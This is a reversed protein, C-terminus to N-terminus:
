KPRTWPKAEFRQHILEKYSRLLEKDQEGDWPMAMRSSELGIERVKGMPQSLGVETGYYIIPPGPLSMQMSAARSLVSKDGGTIFLFRDMDHNDLFNLMLFDEPFYSLHQDLFRNFAEENISKQTFSRRIAEALIFDLAGDMRGFYRRLTPPPEVMEGFCFVDEKERKCAVWFDSWFSPGPGLAYDLRYGDVDFEGLWYRAIDLMWHQAELNTLNLQPMSRVGFYTRYGIHPDSFDFWQRYPSQPNALADKFIPHQDSLHNCILDLIVRLGRGHAAAVLERLAEDGGLRSEVREYDTADYGHHTPSPFIPSLWICNIGLDAIYDLKEAVGWLTGGFFGLLDSTQNWEKGKGPYFRDVFIQYIVAQRAWHPPRLRDISFNFLDGKAPDGARGTPPSGNHFYARTAEEVTSKVDPYDCFVEDGGPCWASIRYRVMVGESQPPLTAEWHTLYGWIFNDWECGVKQLPLALGNQPAGYSGVPDSGDLTYYCTLRDAPVDTSTSVRITVAQDPQPDLPNIDHAHHVGQRSVRHNLLKLDDTLLTGFIFDKM